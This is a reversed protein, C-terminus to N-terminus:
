RGPMPVRSLKYSKPFWEDVKGENGLMIQVLAEAAQFTLAMGHGNFGASIFLGEQGPAEGVVPQEDPTYAMIGTWEQLTEGNEGWNKKGFYYESCVSTLYQSIVPNITSDDLINKEGNEGRPTGL